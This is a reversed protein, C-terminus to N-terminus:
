SSALGAPAPAGPVPELFDPLSFFFPDFPIVRFPFPPDLPPPQADAAQEARREALRASKDLGSIASM